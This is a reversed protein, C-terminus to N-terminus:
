LITQRKATRASTQQRGAGRDEWELRFGYRDCGRGAYTFRRGFVQAVYLNGFDAYGMRYCSTLSSFNNWEVYSVIGKYGEALYAELARTMAIAHLRQGRYKNHTFGKYMYIYGPDFRLRVGPTDIETPENSYWGYNALMSGDLFGYCRDGKAFAQRLFSETIEYEPHNRAVEALEREGLFGGWYPKDCKLFEPNVTEIRIGKLIRASAARNAARLSLDQLTKVAGFRQFERVIDNLKM